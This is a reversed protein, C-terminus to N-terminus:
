EMPTLAARLKKYYEPNTEYIMGFSTNQGKRIRAELMDGFSAEPTDWEKPYKISKAVWGFLDSDVLASLDNPRSGTLVIEKPAQNRNYFAECAINPINVPVVLKDIRCPDGALIAEEVTEVTDPIELAGHISNNFFAFERIRKVSKPISINVILMEKFAARGISTVGELIVVDNFYAYDPYGHYEEDDLMNYDWMDGSGGIYLVDGTVKWYVNDGCQGYSDTNSKDVDSFFLEKDM